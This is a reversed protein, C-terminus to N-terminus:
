RTTMWILVLFSFIQLFIVTKPAGGEDWEQCHWEPNLTFLSDVIFGLTLAALLVNQKLLGKTLLLIGTFFMGAALSDKVQGIKM